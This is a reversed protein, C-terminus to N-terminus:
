KWQEMSYLNYVHQYWFTFFLWHESFYNYRSTFSITQDEPLRRAGGRGAELNSTLMVSTVGAMPNHVTSWFLTVHWDGFNVSVIERFAYVRIVYMYTHYREHSIRNTSLIIHLPFISFHLSKWARILVTIIYFLVCWYRVFLASSLTDTDTDADVAVEEEEVSAGGVTVTVAAPQRASWVLGSSAWWQRGCPSKLSWAAPLVAPPNRRAAM